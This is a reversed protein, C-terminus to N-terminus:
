QRPHLTSSSAYCFVIPTRKKWSKMYLSWLRQGGRKHRDAFDWFRWSTFSRRNYEPEHLNCRPEHLNYGPEHLNYGPEHLNYVPEHLNYGPEHLNCGPDHLNYQVHSPALSVQTDLIIFM